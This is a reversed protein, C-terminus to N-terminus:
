LKHTRVNDERCPTSITNEQVGFFIEDKWFYDIHRVSSKLYLIDTVLLLKLPVDFHMQTATVVHINSAVSWRRDVPVPQHGPSHSHTVYHLGKDASPLYRSPYAKM